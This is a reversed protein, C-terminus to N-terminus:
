DATAGAAGGTARVDGDSGGRRGGLLRGIIQAGEAYSRARREHEDASSLHRRRRADDALRRCLAMQEKQARLANYLIGELDEAGAARLAEGTFAHGTHCRYRLVGDEQMEYMAGHCEPCTSASLTGLPNRDPDMRLEQAAILTELRLREPAEVAPPRPGRALAAVCGALRRAPLVHDAAGHDIASRPMDPFLADEPEQVLAVGGCRRIALLGATGDDLLGSLLVGVVRTSCNVAAARFLVDIAPRARNERPGRRVHLHDRGVLLHHDPPAVHIRGPAFRTGEEAVVAPLPGAADLLEALVPPSGAGRHIVVFVAAGLDAPLGAVLRRLAELAGASGGVVIVDRTAGPASPL